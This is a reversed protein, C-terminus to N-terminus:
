STPREHVLNAEVKNVFTWFLSKLKPNRTSIAKKRAIIYLDKLTKASRVADTALRYRVAM